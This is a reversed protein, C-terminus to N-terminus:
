FVPGDIPVLESEWRADVRAVQARAGALTFPVTKTRGFARIALTGRIPSRVEDGGDARVVEVLFAGASATSLAVTEHDRSTAGSTRAAKVRTIAGARRGAPDIIAVDLDVGGDWRASVVIDGYAGERANAELKALAAEVASRQAGKVGDSWREASRGRGQARECAIARARADASEGRLEAAAVHFACAEPKDLRDYSRGVEQAIAFAESPTLASASLAGGLIRLAADREGRRASLDARAVIVDADLPDRASWKALADDLEGLQGSVALLRALDRHKSREDPAAALATRAAALKDGLAPPASEASTTARRVWIKKMYQGRGRWPPPALPRPVARALADRPPAPSDALESAPARKAPAAAAVPAKSAAPALFGGGGSQAQKSEDAGGLDGDDFADFLAASERGTSAGGRASAVHGSALSEGTWQAAHEAREIGFAKFMAESELVLLSTARSPVSFRRSLAVLETTAAGGPERERDKIRAAAFLRPVFANGVDATARLEVPYKAEFRDGGVTGRLVVDGKVSEGSMRATVVVEEGARVPALASPAADRLGDPLAVEVDRLMTGYTAGLVELATSALQQGPQYPITVGGGGRAIEALLGADADAGIPVTVVFSRGDPLADAVETAVRAPSRYGATAVGDSLLTVRLDRASERGAVRAAARIAGVLDSAGDPEIGRLFADVDHAGPAGPAVFGGPLARCSVDCALVTVRDRRDMEEVVRAALRRARAFREGFMARGADVVLVQDRPKADSWRPLKPRLAIAVFPDDGIPDAEKAKSSRAVAEAPAARYAWATADSAGDDLAYEIALDGSPVFSTMTSAFRVAGGEDKKDIEYGRARVPVRRDHGLVQADLSFRDITLTSSSGQPLPYVYRRLGAVPAITETYAIVVRRSGRKPIPFIRLEFRGGRQWELLAPDHWPGPVWVIEEKPKPAKPAANRLAGRWIASAKAKAIFEGEVLKDDVELALREIQAGPPLPFRYIGELEDDTDNAFTEDIETRAVNGAIRVKVAHDRLRVAHDKEDTRGPRRARLEGLGSASAEPEDANSVLEEGFAARRALSSAPAVDIKGDRVVAEEGATVTQRARAGSAIEVEGRLVDVNTREVAATVALKTGLVRVVGNPTHIEAQPAGEVHAVEALVAGEKLTITRPADEVLLETARDLVLSSGDDLALRARTRGDTALRMGPTIEAGEGLAAKGAQTLVGLGAASPEAGTRVVDTVKGRWANAAVVASTAAPERHCALHGAGSAAVAACAVLWGLTRKSGQRARGATEPRTM